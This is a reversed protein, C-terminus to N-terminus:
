EDKDEKKDEYIKMDKNGPLEPHLFAMVPKNKSIIIGFLVVFISAIMAFPYCMMDLATQSEPFFMVLSSFLLSMLIGIIVIIAGFVKAKKDGEM